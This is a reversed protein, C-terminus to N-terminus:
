GVHGGKSYCCCRRFNLLLLFLSRDEDFYCPLCYDCFFLEKERRERKKMAGASTSSGAACCCCCCCSCCCGRSGERAFRLDVVERPPQERGRAHAAGDRRRWGRCVRRGGRLGAARAVLRLAGLRDAAQARCLGRRWNRRSDRGGDGSDACGAAGGGRRRLPAQGGDRRSPLVRRRSGGRRRRRAGGRRYFRPRRPGGHRRPEPLRHRRNDNKFLTFLFLHARKREESEERKPRSLFLFIVM